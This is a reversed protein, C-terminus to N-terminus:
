QGWGRDRLADAIGESELWATWWIAALMEAGATLRELAFEKAEPHAPTDAEFGHAKELEYLREVTANSAQVHKWIAARLSGFEEPASPM